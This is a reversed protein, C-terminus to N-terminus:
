RLSERRHGVHGYDMLRLESFLGVYSINRVFAKKTDNKQLYQGPDGYWFDWFEVTLTKKVAGPSDSPKSKKLFYPFIRKCTRLTM